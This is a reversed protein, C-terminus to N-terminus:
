SSTQHTPELLAPHWGSSQSSLTEHGWWVVALSALGQRPHDPESENRRIRGRQSRPCIVKSKRLRLTGMQLIPIITTGVSLIAKSTQLPEYYLVGWGLVLCQDDRLFPHSNQLALGSPNQPVRTSKMVHWEYVTRVTSRIFAYKACINISLFFSCNASLFYFSIGSM